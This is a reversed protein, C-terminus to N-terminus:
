FFENIRLPVVCAAILFTYIGQFLDQLSYTAIGKLMGSCLGQLSYTAIGKLRGPCQGQLSYTNIGKLRGPCQGQLSYTAIGKLRGLCQGQSTCIAIGKRMFRCTVSALETRILRRIVYTSCCFLINYCKLGLTNDCKHAFTNQEGLSALCHKKELANHSGIFM